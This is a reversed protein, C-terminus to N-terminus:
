SVSGPTRTDAHALIMNIFTQYKMGHEKARQKLTALISRPIRISIKESYTTQNITLPPSLTVSSMLAADDPHPSEDLNLELDPFLDDLDNETLENIDM